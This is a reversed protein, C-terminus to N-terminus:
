RKEQPRNLLRLSITSDQNERIELRLRPFDKLFTPLTIISRGENGLRFYLNEQKSGSASKIVITGHGDIGL